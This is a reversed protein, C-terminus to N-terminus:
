EKTKKKISELENSLEDVEGQVIKFPLKFQLCYMKGTKEEFKVHTLTEELQEDENLGKSLTNLIQKVISNKEDEVEGRPLIGYIYVQPSEEAKEYKIQSKQQFGQTIENLFEIASYPNSMYIHNVKVKKIINRIFNGTNAGYIEINNDISNKVVNQLCLDRLDQNIENAYVLLGKKAARTSLLGSGAFVDILVEKDKFNPLLRDREKNLSVYLDGKKIFFDCGDEKYKIYEEEAEIREKIFTHELVKGQNAKIVFGRITQIITKAHEEDPVLVEFVKLSGDTGAQMKTLRKKLMLLPYVSSILFNDQTVANNNEPRIYCTFVWEKNNSALGYFTNRSSGTKTMSFSRLQDLNQIIGKKIESTKDETILVIQLELDYLAHDAIVTHAKESKIELANQLKFGEDSFFASRIILTILSSKSSENEFLSKSTLEVLEKHNPKFILDQQELLLQDFKINSQMLNFNWGRGTFFKETPDKSPEKLYKLYFHIEDTRSTTPIKEEERLVKGQFVVEVPQNDGFSKKYSEDDSLLYQKLDFILPNDAKLEANQIYSEEQEIRIYIIAM